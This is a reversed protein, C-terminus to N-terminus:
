EDQGDQVPFVWRVQGHLAQDRRKRHLPPPLPLVKEAATANLVATSWPGGGTNPSSSRPYKESCGAGLYCAM